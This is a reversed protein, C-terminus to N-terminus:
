RRFPCYDWESLPEKPKSIMRWKAGSDDRTSINPKCVFEFRSGISFIKDDNPIHSRRVIIDKQGESTNVGILVDNSGHAKLSFITGLFIRRSSVCPRPDRHSGVPGSGISLLQGMVSKYFLM